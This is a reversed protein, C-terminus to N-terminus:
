PTVRRAVTGLNSFVEIFKSENPGLYVLCSGFMHGEPPADPRNFIIKGPVFCILFEWLPQFWRQKPDAKLLMIAESIHGEHYESILKDIWMKAICPRKSKDGHEMGRPVTTYSYPPNLWVNGDWAKSLGDDDKTFYRTAKVTENALACSAPDLDISGLVERAAEIVYSPTYWENSKLPKVPAAITM